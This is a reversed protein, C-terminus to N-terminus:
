TSQPYLFKPTQKTLFGISDFYTNNKYFIDRKTTFCNATVSSKLFHPLLM